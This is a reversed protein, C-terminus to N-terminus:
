NYGVGIERDGSGGGPNSGSPRICIHVLRFLAIQGDTFEVDFHLMTNMPFAGISYDNVPSIFSFSAAGTGSISWTGSYMGDVDLCSWSYGVISKIPKSAQVTLVYETNGDVFFLNSSSSSGANQGTLQYTFSQGYSISSALLVVSLVILVKRM